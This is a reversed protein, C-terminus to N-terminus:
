GGIVEFDDEVIEISCKFKERLIEVAQSVTLERKKVIWLLKGRQALINKIGGTAFPNIDCVDQIDWEYNGQYTLNDNYDMIRMFGNNGMLSYGHVLYIENRIKVTMGNKLDKKTFDAKLEQM